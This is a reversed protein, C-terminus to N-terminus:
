TVKNINKLIHSGTKSIENQSVKNDDIGPPLKDDTCDIVQNNNSLRSSQKNTLTLIRSKNVETESKESLLESTTFM